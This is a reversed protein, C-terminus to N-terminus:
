NVKIRRIFSSSVETCEDVRNVLDETNCITRTVPESVTQCVKFLTLLCLCICNLSDPAQVSWESQPESNNNLQQITKFAARNCSTMSDQTLEPFNERMSNPRDAPPHTSTMHPNFAPRHSMPCKRDGKKRNGKATQGFILFFSHLCLLAACLFWLFYM